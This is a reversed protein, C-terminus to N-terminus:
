YFEMPDEISNTDFNLYYLKQDSTVIMGGNGIAKVAKIIGSVQLTAQYGGKMLPDGECIYCNLYGNSFHATAQGYIFRNDLIIEQDIIFTWKGKKVQKIKFNTLPDSHNTIKGILRLKRDFLVLFSDSDPLISKSSKMELLYETNIVRKGGESSGKYFHSRQIWKVNPLFSLSLGTFSAPLHQYSIPNILQSLHHQLLSILQPKKPSPSKRISQISSSISDLQWFISNETPHVFRLGDVCCCALTQDSLETISLIEENSVKIPKKDSNPFKVFGDGSCTVLDGSSLCIIKRICDSHLSVRGILSLNEIPFEALTGNKFGILLSNSAEKM